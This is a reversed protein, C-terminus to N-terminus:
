CNCQAKIFDIVEVAKEFYKQMRVFTLGISKGHVINHRNAVISDIADKREGDVYKGIVDRWDKSFAGIVNLIKEMNPNQFGELHNTVYNSIYPHSKKITYESLYHKISNEIFGSTLVCLYKAWHSLMESNNNFIKACSFLSTLQQKQALIIHDNM